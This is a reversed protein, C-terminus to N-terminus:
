CEFASDGSQAGRCGDAKIATEGVGWPSNMAGRGCDDRLRIFAGWLTVQDPWARNAAWFCANFTVFVRVHTVFVQDSMVYIADSTVDTADFTVSIGDDTVNIAM